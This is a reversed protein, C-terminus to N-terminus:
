IKTGLNIHSNELIINRIAAILIWISISIRGDYYQIDVMHTALMVILSILLSRDIHSYFIKDKKFYKKLSLCILYAIPIFTFLTAPIGYGIAIEMLLNHSHYKELNSISQYIEPFSSAGSGFFPNNTIIELSKAWIDLRDLYQFNTFENLTEIPILSLQDNFISYTVIIAICFLSSIVWKLSKIGFFLITSTFLGIWASRSNTLVICIVILILFILSIIRRFFCDKKVLLALSIPLIINLWAGAYNPNNFLGTLVNNDTPRSYWILFGNLIQFPGYINFFVQGIGTLLVTFSGALLFFAFRRREEEKILYPQFGWSLFFFPIWNILGIWALSPKWSILGSYQYNISQNFASIIMFAGSLLFSINIKDKIFSDKSKTCGIISAILLLAASITFASPLLFIGLYFIIFPYNKKSSVWLSKKM